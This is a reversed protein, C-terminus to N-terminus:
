PEIPGDGGVRRAVEPGTRLRRLPSLGRVWRPLEGLEEMNAAVRGLDEMRSAIRSLDEMRNAIQALSRLLILAARLMALGGFLITPGLLLLNLLGRGISRSFGYAALETVAYLLGLTAVVQIVTFVRELAVPRYSLDFLPLLHDLLARLVDRASVKTRIAADEVPGPPLAHPPAASEDPPEGVHRHVAEM